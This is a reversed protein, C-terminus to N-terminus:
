HIFYLKKETIFVIIEGLLLIFEEKIWANVFFNLSNRQGYM